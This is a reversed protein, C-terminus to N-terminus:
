LGHELWTPQVIKKMVKLYKDELAREFTKDTQMAHSPEHNSISGGRHMQPKHKDILDGEIAWNLRYGVFLPSNIQVRFVDGVTLLSRM